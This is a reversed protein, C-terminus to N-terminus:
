ARRGQRLQGGLLLAIRLRRACLELAIELSGTQSAAIGEIQSAIAAIEAEPSSPAQM